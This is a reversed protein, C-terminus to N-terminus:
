DLVPKCVLHATCPPLHSACLSLYHEQSNNKFISPITLIARLTFDCTCLIVYQIINCAWVIHKCHMVSFLLSLGAVTPPVLVRVVGVVATQLPVGVVTTTLWLVGVGATTLLSVGVVDVVGCPFVSLDGGVGLPGCPELVSSALRGDSPLYTHLTLSTCYHMGCPYQPSGGFLLFFSNAM